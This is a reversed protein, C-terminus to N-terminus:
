LRSFVTHTDVVLAYFFGGGQKFGPSTLSLVDKILENGPEGDLGFLAVMDCASKGHTVKGAFTLM